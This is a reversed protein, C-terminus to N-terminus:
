PAIPEPSDKLLGRAELIKRTKRELVVESPRDEWRLEAENSGWVENMLNFGRQYDSMARQYESKAESPRGRLVLNIARSLLLFTSPEPSSWPSFSSPKAKAAEDFLKAAAELNGAYSSVAGRTTLFPNNKPGAKLARDALGSLVDRDVGSSADLSCVRAVREALVPDNTRGFRDMLEACADRYASQNNAALWAAAQAIAPGPPAGHFTAAKGFASAAESWKSMEGFARGQRLFLDLQGGFLDIIEGLDFSAMPWDKAVFEADAQHELWKRIPGEALPRALRLDKRARDFLGRRALARARRVLLDWGDPRKEILPDIHAVVAEWRGYLESEHAQREHWRIVEQDSPRFRWPYKEALERHIEAIGPASPTSLGGQDDLVHSSLVEALDGLSSTTVRDDPKLEVVFIELQRGIGSHQPIRWGDYGRSTGPNLEPRWCLPSMMPEGYTLDWVRALGDVGATVLRRNDPSFDAHLPSGGQLLLPGVNEGKDINWLSVYDYGRLVASRGDRSITAHWSERLWEQKVWPPPLALSPFAAGIQPNIVLNLSGSVVITGDSERFVAGAPPLGRYPAAIMPTIPEGARTDWVRVSRDDGILMLRHGDASFRGIQIGPWQFLAPTVPVGSSADWVRAATGSITLLRSGDPSFEVIPENLRNWDGGEVMLNTNRDLTPFMTYADRDRFVVGTDVGFRATATALEGPLTIQRYGQAMDWIRVRRARSGSLSVTALKLGSPSFVANTIPGKDVLRQETALSAPKGPELRWIRIRGGGDDGGFLAIKTGDPSIAYGFLPVDLALWGSLARGRGTEWARVRTPKLPEKPTRAGPGTTRSASPAPGSPLVVSSPLPTGTPQTASKTDGVPASTVEPSVTRNGQPQSTTPSKVPSPVTSAPAAPPTKGMESDFPREPRPLTFGDPDFPSVRETPADANLLFRGNSSLAIVWGVGEKTGELDIRKGTTADLLRLDIKGELLDNAVLVVRGEQGLFAARSSISAYRHMGSKPLSAKIEPGELVVPDSLPQGSDNEWTRAEIAPAQGNRGDRYTISLLRRGDHSIATTLLRALGLGVTAHVEMAFPVANERGGSFFSDRILDWVRVKLESNNPDTRSVTYLSTEQPSFQALWVPGPHSALCYPVYTTNSPGSKWIWAMGDQCAAAVLGDPGFAAHYVESDHSLTAIPQGTKGTADWVRVKGDSGATLVRTGANDFEAYNVTGEHRLPPTLPRGDRADWVRAECESAGARCITLIRESSAGFAARIVAGGHSLQWPAPEGTEADWVRVLNDDGCTVVQRGNQSFSAFRAPAALEHTPSAAGGGDVSWIRARGGLVSEGITVVRRGDPSFETRIVREPWARDIPSRKDRGQHLWTHELRPSAGLLATLRERQAKSGPGDSEELRLARVFWPMAGLLDREDMLQLGQAVASRINQDRDRNAARQLREKYQDFEALLTRHLNPNYRELLNLQDDIQRLRVHDDLSDVKGILSRVFTALKKGYLENAQRALEPALHDLETIERSIAIFQSPDGDYERINSTIRHQLDIRLNTQHFWATVVTAVVIAIGGLYGVLRVGAWKEDRARQSSRLLDREVDDLIEENVKAWAEAEALGRGRLLLSDPRKARDWETAHLLAPHLHQQRWQRNSEQLPEILRDHALEYWTSGRREEARVLFADILQTIAPEPLGRTNGPERLIQGRRSQDTLLERECWERITRESVNTKKVIERMTDAYYGALAADVDGETDGLQTEDLHMFDAKSGYRNWLRLGVIQLHVPEVYPGLVAEPTGNPRQVIIRRLDDVLRSTAKPTVSVNGLRFTREFAEHASPANLLDLRFRSAMRRPIRNLYPELAAVYEERMVFLAWRDLERLTDGLQVFFADKASIDTPDTTLIEEFQDFILVLNPTRGDDTPSLTHAWQRFAPALEGHHTLHEPPAQVVGPRPRELSELASRVFRNLQPTAPAKPSTPQGLRIIPLDFFEEERLLPILGAQILSTKGAGSPSFMLVIREAILLNFLKSADRDRGFLPEGYTFPLPGVFPCTRDTTANPMTM